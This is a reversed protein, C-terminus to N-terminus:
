TNELHKFKVVKTLTEFATQLTLLEETDVFIDIM